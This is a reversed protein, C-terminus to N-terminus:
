PGVVTARLYHALGLFKEQEAKPLSRMETEYRAVLNDFGPQGVLHALIIAHMGRYPHYSIDVPITANMAQELAKVDRNNDLFPAVKTEIIPGLIAIANTLDNETAVRFTAPRRETFSELQAVVTFSEGHYKQPSGAFLHFIREVTELRVCVVLSFEFEPHFDYFPIGISQFGDPIERTFRPGSKKLRFGKGSLLKELGGLLLGKVQQKTM